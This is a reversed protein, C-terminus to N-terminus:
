DPLRIFISSQIVSLCIISTRPDLLFAVFYIDHTKFFEEYRKNYIETVQNALSRPIGTKNVDQNLLDKLTAAIALWFIFIDAANAHAAELSWLSHILPLLL